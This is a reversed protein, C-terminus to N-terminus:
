CRALSTPRHYFASTRIQPHPLLYFVYTSTSSMRSQGMTSLWDLGILPTYGQILKPGKRVLRKPAM